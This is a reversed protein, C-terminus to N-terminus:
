RILQMPIEVVGSPSSHAHPQYNGRITDKILQADLESKAGCKHLVQVLASTVRQIEEQNQRSRGPHVTDYKSMEYLWDIPLLISEMFHALEPDYAEAGQTGIISLHRAIRSVKDCVFEENIFQAIIKCDKMFRTSFCLTGDNEVWVCPYKLGVVKFASGKKQAIGKFINALKGQTTKESRSLMFENGVPGNPQYREICKEAANDPLYALISRRSGQPQSVTGLEIDRLQHVVRRAGIREIRPKDPGGHVFRVAVKGKSINNTGPITFEYEKDGIHKEIPKQLLYITAETLTEAYMFYPRVLMQRPGLQNQKNKQFIFILNTLWRIPHRRSAPNTRSINLESYVKFRDLPFGHIVMPKEESVVDPLKDVNIEITGDYYKKKFYPLMNFLIHKCKYLTLLIGAGGLAEIIASWASGQWKVEINFPVSSSTAGSPDSVELTGSCSKTNWPFPDSFFRGFRGKVEGTAANLMLSGSACGFDAIFTLPDREPDTGEIMFGVEEGPETSIPAIRKITPISNGVTAPITMNTLQMLREFSDVALNRYAKVKAGLSDEATIVLSQTGEDSDDPTGTCMGSNCYLWSLQSSIGGVRELQYNAIPSSFSVFESRLDLHFSHRSAASVDKYVQIPQPYHEGIISFYSTLTGGAGDNYILMIDLKQVTDGNLTGRFQLAGSDFSINPPLPQGNSLKATVTLNRESFVASYPISVTFEEGLEVVPNPISEKQIPPTHVNVALTTNVPDNRGDSAFITINYDGIDESTATGFLTASRPNFQLFSPLGEAWLTIVDQPNPDTVVVFVSTATGAVANIPPIPAFVPPGQMHCLLEVTAQGGAMDTATIPLIHDGTENHAYTLELLYNNLSYIEISGSNLLHLRGNNILASFCNHKLNFIIQSEGTYPNIQTIDSGQYFGFLTDGDMEFHDFNRVKTPITRIVDGKYDLVVLSANVIDSSSNSPPYLLIYSMGNKVTLAADYIVPVFPSSIPTMRVQQLSNFPDFVYLGYQGTISNEALVNLMMSSEDIAITRVSINRSSLNLSTKISLDEADIQLIIHPNGFGCLWVFVLKNKVILQSIYNNYPITNCAIEYPTYPDLVNYMHLSISYDTSNYSVAYAIGHDVALDSFSVKTDTSLVLTSLVKKSSTDVFHMKRNSELVYDIDGKAAFGRNSDGGVSITSEIYPQPAFTVWPPLPEHKMMSLFMTDYPDPDMFLRNTSLTLSLTEGLKVSVDALPQILVPFQDKTITFQRYVRVGSANIASFQIIDVGSQTPTGNITWNSLDHIRLGSPDSLSTSTTYLYKGDIVRPIYANDTFAQSIPILSLTHNADTGVHLYSIQFGKVLSMYVIESDITLHMRGETQMSQLMELSAPDFAQLHHFSSGGDTIDSLVFLVKGKSEVQALAISVPSNKLYQNIIKTNIIKPHTPDTINISRVAEYYGLPGYDSASYVIRDDAVVIPNFPSGIDINSRIIAPNLNLDVITLNGLRIALALLNSRPDYSLDFKKHLDLSWLPMPNSINHLDISMIETLNTRAVCFGDKTIKPEVIYTSIDVHSMIAPNRPNSVDVIDVGRFNSTMCAIGDRIDIGSYSSAIEAVVVPEPCLWQPIQSGDGQTFVAGRMSGGFEEEFNLDMSYEAGVQALKHPFAAQVQKLMPIFLPLPNEFAASLMLSTGWLALNSTPSPTASTANVLPMPLTQSHEVPQSVSTIFANFPIITLLSILSLIEKKFDQLIPQLNDPIGDRCMWALELLLKKENEFKRIVSLSSGDVDREITTFELTGDANRKVVNKSELKRLIEKIDVSEDPLGDRSIWKFYLLLEEEDQFTTTKEVKQGSLDFLQTLQITGDSNERILGTDLLKTYSEELESDELPEPNIWNLYLSLEELNRVRVINEVFEGCEQHVDHFVIMGSEDRSVLSLKELLSYLKESESASIESSEPYEIWNIKLLRPSATRVADDIKSDELTYKGRRDIYQQVRLEWNGRLTHIKGKEDIFRIINNEALEFLIYGSLTRVVSRKSKKLNRVFQQGLTESEGWIQKEIHIWIQRLLGKSPQRSARSKVKYVHKPM